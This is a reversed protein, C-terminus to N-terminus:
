NKEKYKTGLLYDWLPFVIGFNYKGMLKPDHHLRHHEYMAKLGPIKLWPNSEKLHCSFHVVEYLTFYSAANLVFYYGMDTDFILWGIGFFIPCILLAFGLIIFWPFFIVDLEDLSDFTIADAIFYKHHSLTHQQYPFSSPGWNRHLPYKHILFVVLNGTILFIFTILFFLLRWTQIHFASFLVVSLLVSFNFLPFLFPPVSNKLNKKHWERYAFASQKNFGQFDDM